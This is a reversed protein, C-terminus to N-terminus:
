SLKIRLKVKGSSASAVRVIKFQRPVNMPLARDGFMITM